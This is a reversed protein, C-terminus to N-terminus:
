RHPLDAAGVSAPELLNGCATSAQKCGLHAERWAKLFTPFVLMSGQRLLPLAALGGAVACQFPPCWAM